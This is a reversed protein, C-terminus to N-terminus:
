AAEKAARRRAREEKALKWHAECKGGKMWLGECGDVTCQARNSESGQPDGTYYWMSYHNKCWGKADHPSECADIKCGKDGPKKIAATSRRRRRNARQKPRSSRTRSRPPANVTTPELAEVTASVIATDVKTARVAQTNARKALLAAEFAIEMVSIPDFVLRTKGGADKVIVDGNGDSWADLAEIVEVLRDAADECTELAINAIPLLNEGRTVDDPNGTAIAAKTTDRLLRANDAMERVRGFAGNAAKAAPGYLDSTPPTKGTRIFQVTLAIWHVEDASIGMHNATKACRAKFDGPQHPGGFGLVHRAVFAQRETLRDIFTNGTPVLPTGDTLANPDTESGVISSVILPHRMISLAKNQASGAWTRSRGHSDGITSLNEPTHGDLGQHRILVEALDEPLVQRTVVAVTRLTELHEYTEVPGPGTDVQMDIYESGDEDDGTTANLSVTNTPMLVSAVNRATVDKVIESVREHLREDHAQWGTEAQVLAAAKLIKGKRKYSIRALHPHENRWVFDRCEDLMRYHSHSSLPAQNPDFSSLAEMMGVRASQLLDDWETRKGHHWKRAAAVALPEAGLDFIATVAIDLEDAHHGPDGDTQKIAIWWRATARLLSHPTVRVLCSVVAHRRLRARDNVNLTGSTILAAMEPLGADAALGLTTIDLRDGRLAANHGDLCKLDTDAPNARNTASTGIVDDALRTVDDPKASADALADAVLDTVANAITRSNTM